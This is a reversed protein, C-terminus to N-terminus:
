RADVVSVVAHRWATELADVPLDPLKPERESVNILTEAWQDPQAGEVIGPWSHGFLFEIFEHRRAVVPTGLEYARAAIGSQFYFDYPVLVIHADSIARDLESESLFRSDVNWGSLSPWGRGCVSWNWDDPLLAPLSQLLQLDRAEKCQGAVLVTPTPSKAAPVAQRDLMVPHPLVMHCHIGQEALAAAALETHTVVRVRKGRSGWRGLARGMRGFGAQKRLPFPDHIIVMRIGRSLRALALDALGLSPWLVLAARRRLALALLRSLASVRRAPRRLRGSGSAEISVAVSDLPRELHGQLAQEYHHLAQPLPNVLLPM